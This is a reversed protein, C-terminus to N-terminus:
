RPGSGGLRRQEARVDLQPARGVVELGGDLPQARAAHRAELPDLLQHPRRRRVGLHDLMGFADDEGTSDYVAATRAVTASL